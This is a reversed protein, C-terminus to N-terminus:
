QIREKVNIQGTVICDQNFQLGSTILNWDPEIIISGGQGFDLSQGLSSTEVGWRNSIILTCENNAAFDMWKNAPFGGDPGWNTCGIVIDPKVPQNDFLRRSANRPINQPIEDKLDRCIILSIDGISTNVVKPEEFGSTAWMFDPGWLNMKRHQLILKGDPNVLSASNFYKGEFYEIYGWAIFVSNQQAIESMYEFTSGDSSESIQRVESQNAFAYGTFALEPFVILESGYEIAKLLYQEARDINTRIFSPNIALEPRFQISSIITVSM